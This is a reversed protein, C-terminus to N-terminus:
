WIDPKYPAVKIWNYMKRCCVKLIADKSEELLISQLERRLDPLIMKTFALEVCESRLKNWEQVNKSFEDKQYLTKMEDILDASSTGEIQESVYISLLKDEQAIQLKLYQDGALDRVPKDKVYKMSYCPHNEDIEKMGKKTPRVSVKAREYYIERVCKRLLPEKALQRAVMFKAAYLVDEVNVFRKNLYEKAVDTPDNPEQEVEHRQYSDRVNEAYQEPTLGFRKALGSLGAKRCMAYPGSDVNLKVSEETYPEEEIELNDMTLGDVGDESAELAKRRADIKEQRLRESEKKRNQEQMVPILHVYYLLFHNHVDKLEEPTQAAKLREFDDDKLVRIDDPIPADPNEMINDLQCNRMNEFLKHLNTKRVNLQCWKADFKYVKWLDNINLDPQVYEKRYFAIFPVELHQNRIFDLAQKIKAVASHSKRSYSEQSSIPPKCFAHKYIWEAEEDLETSSESVQTIPVDRLQMREPVDAKRIENDLDTFHGRKLESPEFIDFITKKSTKKRTQKKPKKSREENPEDEYEDVESEDEYEDDDYKEFEEYDFDVGFIDQGEQLSGIAISQAIHILKPINHTM